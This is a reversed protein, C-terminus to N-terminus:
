ITGSVNREEEDRQICFELNNKFIHEQFDKEAIWEHEISEKLTEENEKDEQTEQHIRYLSVKESNKDCSIICIKFTEEACSELGFDKWKLLNEGWFLPCETQNRVTYIKGWIGKKTRHEKGDETETDERNETNEKNETNERGTTDKKNETNERNETAERNERNETDDRNGTEGSETNEKSETDEKSEIDERSKEHECNEMREAQNRFEQKEQLKRKEQEIAEKETNQNEREILLCNHFENLEKKKRDLEERAKNYEAAEKQYKEEKEKLENEKKTHSDERKKLAAYQREYDRKRKQERIFAIKKEWQDPGWIEQIKGNYLNELYDLTEKDLYEGQTFHKNGKEMWEGYTYFPLNREKEFLKLLIGALYIHNVYSFSVEEKWAEEKILGGFLEPHLRINKEEQQKDQGYLLETPMSFEQKEKDFVLVEDVPNSIAIEKKDLERIAGTVTYAASFLDDASLLTYAGVEVDGMQPFTVTFNDYFLSNKTNVAIQSCLDEEPKQVMAFILSVDDDIGAVDEGAMFEEIEAKAKEWGNDRCVEVIQVPISDEMFLEYTKTFGDTMASLYTFQNRTRVSVNLYESNLNCLSLTRGTSVGDEEDVFIASWKGDKDAGILAGDGVSVSIIYHETLVFANLTAGYARALEKRNSFEEGGEPKSEQMKVLQQLWQRLIERKGYRGRFYRVVDEELAEKKEFEEVIHCFVECITDAGEKAYRATSHGDACVLVCYKKEPTLYVRSSDQCGITDHKWGRSTITVAKIGFASDDLFSTLEVNGQRVM